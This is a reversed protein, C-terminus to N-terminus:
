FSKQREAKTEKRHQWWVGWYLLAETELDAAQREVWKDAVLTQGGRIAGDILAKSIRRLRARELNPSLDFPQRWLKRFEQGAARFWRKLKILDQNRKIWAIVVPHALFKADKAIAECVMDDTDRM